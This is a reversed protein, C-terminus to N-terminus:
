DLKQLIQTPGYLHLRAMLNLQKALNVMWEAPKALSTQM